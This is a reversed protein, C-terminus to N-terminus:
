KEVFMSCYCCSSKFLEQAKKRETDIRFRSSLASQLARGFLFIKQALTKELIIIESITELAFRKMIDYGEISGPLKYADRAVGAFCAMDVIPVGILGPLPDAYKVGSTTVFVDEPTFDFSSFCGFKPAFEKMETEYLLEMMMSQSGFVPFLFAQYQKILFDKLSNLSKIAELPSCKTRNYVDELGSTLKSYLNAPARELKIAHWFDLGCDQMIIIPIKEIEIFYLPFPLLSIAGIKRMESYGDQNLRIEKKEPDSIGIKVVIAIGKQQARFINKCINGLILRERFEVEFRKELEQKIKELMTKEDM